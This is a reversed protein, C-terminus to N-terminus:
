RRKRIVATGSKDPWLTIHEERDGCFEDIARTAGDWTGSSYDHLILMGGASLRPYFFELATKMPQYLDCDVHALAFRRERVEDTITDPFFGQLYTVAEPHGVTDRVTEISTDNFAKGHGQDVGALDRQDFGEFTDFLFLRRGSQSAFYALIAASNGKWVGLEAFDGEIKETQLQRVNLLLAMFRTADGNNNTKNGRIWRRYLDTLDPFSRLGDPYYAHFAPWRGKPAWTVLGFRLRGIMERSLNLVNWRLSSLMASPGKNLFKKLRSEPVHPVSESTKGSIEPLQM